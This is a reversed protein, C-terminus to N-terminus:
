QPFYQFITGAPTVSGAPWGITAVDWGDGTGALAQIGEFRLQGNLYIRVTATSSGVNHDDYYHVFVHYNHGDLPQQLSVNEPGYGDVDDIDISPNDLLSTTDGWEPNTNDFYCDFPKQFFTGGETDSVMHIDLDTSPTDWVLEIHVTQWPVAHFPYVATAKIGRQDTVTLQVEYEGSIDLKFDAKKPDAAAPAIASTSGQPRQVIAWTWDVIQGDEVYSQSGDFVASDLPAFNQPGTIIAVPPKPVYTITADNCGAIAFAAAAFVAIQIQVFIRM